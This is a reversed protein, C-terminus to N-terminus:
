ERRRADGAERNLPITAVHWPGPPLIAEVESGDVYPMEQLCWITVRDLRSMDDRIVDRKLLGHVNYTALTLDDNPTFAEGADIVRQIATGIPARPTPRAACGACFVVVLVLYM